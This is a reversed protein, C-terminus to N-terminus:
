RQAFCCSLSCTLCPSFPQLCLPSRLSLRQDPTNDVHGPKSVPRSEVPRTEISPDTEPVIRSRIPPEVCSPHSLWFFNSLPPSARAQALERTQGFNLTQFRVSALSLLTAVTLSLHTTIFQGSLHFTLFAPPHLSDSTCIPLSCSQTRELLIAKEENERKSFKPTREPCKLLALTLAPNPRQHVLLM